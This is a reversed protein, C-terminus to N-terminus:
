NQEGDNGFPQHAWFLAIETFSGSNGLLTLGRERHRQHSLVLVLGTDAIVGWSPWTVGGPCWEWVM